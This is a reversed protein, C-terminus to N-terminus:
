NEFFYKTKPRPITDIQPWLSVRMSLKCMTNKVGKYPQATEKRRKLSEKYRKLM